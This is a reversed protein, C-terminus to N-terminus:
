HSGGVLILGPTGGSAELVRQPGALGGRRGKEWQREEGPEGADERRKETKM